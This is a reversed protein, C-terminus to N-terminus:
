CWSVHLQKTLSGHGMFLLSKRSEHNRRGRCSCSQRKHRVLGWRSLTHNTGAFKLIFLTHRDRYDRCCSISSGTEQLGGHAMRPFSTTTNQDYTKTKPQINVDFTNSSM